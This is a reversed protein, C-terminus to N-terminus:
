SVFWSDDEKSLSSSPASHGKPYCEKLLPKGCLGPNGEFSNNEFTGFQKAQPIPGNLQNGSVNFFGLFNLQTLEQPIEGSLHNQSLDLAEPRTLNALSLPIPCSLLNNSLNLFQVGKLVQIDEPIGGEFRNSSLDIAVLIDQIKNYTTEVGGFKNFSLDLIRLKPFGNSKPKGIQGHFGNHRLIRVKLSSLSCIMSSIEGTLLNDSVSFHYISAPPILSLVELTQASLGWIWKPILGHIKNDSLDLFELEDQGLLFDPFEILNCSSLALVAVKPVTANMVPTTVLSFKNRSRLFYKLYRNQYRVGSTTILLIWIPWGLLNEWGLHSKVPFNIEMFDCLPLVLWSLSAPTFEYFSLALITLQTFNSLSKPIQGSFSCNRVDLLSLSKLNGISEPLQGSFCSRLSLYTLSSLNALCEPVVSSANVEEIDLHEMNVLREALSKLNPNRLELNHNRSLDLIVLKSLLDSCLPVANLSFLSPVLLALM